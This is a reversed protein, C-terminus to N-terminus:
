SEAPGAMAVAETLYDLAPQLGPSPTAGLQEQVSRLAGELVAREGEARLYLDGAAARPDLSEQALALARRAIAIHPGTGSDSPPAKM